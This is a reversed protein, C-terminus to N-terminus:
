GRVQSEKMEEVVRPLEKIPGKVCARDEPNCRKREKTRPRFAVGCLSKLAVKDKGSM